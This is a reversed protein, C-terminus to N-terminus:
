MRRSLLDALIPGTEGLAPSYHGHGPLLNTVAGPIAAFAHANGVEVLPDETGHWITTPVRIDALRFGWARGYQRADAWAGDTGDQLGERMAALMAHRITPTLIAADRAPMSKGFVMAPGFRWSLVVLRALALAPRGPFPWKGLQMLLRLGAGTAAEPPPVPSILCLASVRDGLYRACAVATPGGGSVGVVAFRLLGLHDALAAIDQARDRLTGTPHPDSLGYGPRDAAVLRVKLDTVLGAELRSSPWGHCYIASPADM